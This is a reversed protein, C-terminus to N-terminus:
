GTVGLRETFLTATREVDVNAQRVAPCWIPRGALRQPRGIRLHRQASSASPAATRSVTRNDGMAFYQDHGFHVAAFPATRINDSPRGDVTQELAVEGAVDVPQEFLL